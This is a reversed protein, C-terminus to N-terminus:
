RDCHIKPHWVSCLNAEAQFNNFCFYSDHNSFWKTHSDSVILFMRNEFPGAYDLHLRSWPTLPWTWLQLPAKVSTLQMQQCENCSKVLEEIQADLNPWWVYFRMLSKMQSMSPHGEHFDSLALSRGPPPVM